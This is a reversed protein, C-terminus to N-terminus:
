GDFDRHCDGCCHRLAMCFGYRAFFDDKGFDLDSKMYIIAYIGMRTFPNKYAFSIMQIKERVRKANEDFM